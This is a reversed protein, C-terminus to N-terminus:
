GLTGMQYFRVDEKMAFVFVMFLFTLKFCGEVLM